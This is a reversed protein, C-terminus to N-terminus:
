IYPHAHMVRLDIKPPHRVIPSQHRPECEKQGAAAVETDKSQVSRQCIQLLTLQLSVENHLEFFHQWVRLLFSAGAPVSHRQSYVTSKPTM